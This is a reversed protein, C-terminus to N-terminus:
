SDKGKGGVSQKRKRPGAGRVAQVEASLPPPEMDTLAALRQRLKPADLMGLADLARERFADALQGFAEPFQRLLPEIAEAGTLFADAAALPEDGLMMFGLKGYSQVLDLLFTDRNSEALARYRDVAERTAELAEERHGAEHM